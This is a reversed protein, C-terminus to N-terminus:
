GAHEPAGNAGNVSPRVAGNPGGEVRKRKNGVGSNEDNYEGLRSGFKNEVKALRQSLAAIDALIARPHPYVLEMHAIIMEALSKTTINNYQTDLGTVRHNLNEINGRMDTAVKELEGEVKEVKTKVSTVELDQHQVSEERLETPLRDIRTRLDTVAERVGRYNNNADQFSATSYKWLGKIDGSIKNVMGKLHILEPDPGQSRRPTGSGDALSSQRSNLEAAQAVAGNVTQVELQAVTKALHEHERKLQGVLDKTDVTNRELKEFRELLAQVSDQLPKWEEEFAEQVRELTKIDLRRIDARNDKTVMAMEELDLKAWVENQRKIQAQGAKVNATDTKVNALNRELIELRAGHGTHASRLHPVEVEVKQKDARIRDLEAWLLKTQEQQLMVENKQRGELKELQKKLEDQTQVSTAQMDQKEKRLEAVQDELRKQSEMMNDFMQQQQTIQKAFDERQVRLKEDIDNTQNPQSNLAELKTDLAQQLSNVKDELATDRKDFMRKIHRQVLAEAEIPITNALNAGLQESAKDLEATVQKHEKELQALEKDHKQRYRNHYESVSPYEAHKSMSRDYELRRQAQAVRKLEMNMEIKAKKTSLRDWNSLVDTLKVYSTASPKM